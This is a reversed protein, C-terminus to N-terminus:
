AGLRRMKIFTMPTAPTYGATPNFTSGASSYIWFTVVTGSPLYEEVDSIGFYAADTSTSNAM